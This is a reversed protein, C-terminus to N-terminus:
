NLWEYEVVDALALATMFWGKIEMALQECYFETYCCYPETKLMMREYTWLCASDFESQIDSMRQYLGRRWGTNM